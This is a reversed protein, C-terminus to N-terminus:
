RTFGPVDLENGNARYRMYLSLAIHPTSYFEPHPIQISDYCFNIRNELTYMKDFSFTYAPWHDTLGQEPSRIPALRVRRGPYRDHCAACSLDMQGARWYWLREGIEFMEKEQPDNLTVRIPMEHSFSAIYSVLAVVMDRDFEDEGFGLVQTLCTVVRTDLDEVRDSDAFYKPLEAYAGELVGPGKGFDCDAMTKGSAGELSNYYEEGEAVFLEGPHAGGSQELFLQRQRKAEEAPSLAWVLAGALLAFGFTYFFRRM